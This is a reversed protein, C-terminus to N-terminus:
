PRWRAEAKGTLFRMLCLECGRPMEGASAEERVKAFGQEWVRLAGEAATGLSYLYHCCPRLSGDVTVFVASFPADCYTRAM